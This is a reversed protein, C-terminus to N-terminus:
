DDRWVTYQRCRSAETTAVGPQGLVDGTGSPVALFRGILRQVTIPLRTATGNAASTPNFFSVNVGGGGGVSSINTGQDLKSIITPDTGILVAIECTAEPVEFPVTTADVTVGERTLGSRPFALTTANTGVFGTATGEWTERNLFRTASRLSQAQKNPTLALWVDAKPDLMEAVYMRAGALDIYVEPDPSVGAIPVTFITM